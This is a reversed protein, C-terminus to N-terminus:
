PSSGDLVNNTPWQCITALQLGEIKMSILQTDVPESSKQWTPMNLGSITKRPMRRTASLQWYQQHRWSVTKHRQGFPVEIAREHTKIKTAAIETLMTANQKGVRWKVISSQGMWFTFKTRPHGLWGCNIVGSAIDWEYGMLGGNIGNMDM